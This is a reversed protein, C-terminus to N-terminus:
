TFITALSAADPAAQYPVIALRPAPMLKDLTALNEEWYPMDPSLTNAIWGKITLGDAQIAEATLLAHNLCGLRMGVVIIVDLALTQVVDSMFRQQGLPLRWGGAGEMLLVDPQRAALHHFGDAIVQESIHRNALDAAIHPAIAPELAIPNIEALTLPVNSAAQMALADENQWENNHWDCGAAVPKYGIAKKGAVAVARILATTVYTKGVETDTGTVFYAQTM